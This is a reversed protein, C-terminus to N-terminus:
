IVREAILTIIVIMVMISLVILGVIDANNM